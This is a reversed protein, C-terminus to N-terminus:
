MEFEIEISEKLLDLFEMKRFTEQVNKTVNLYWTKVQHGLRVQVREVRGLALLLTGAHGWADSHDSIKRFRYQLDALLRYALV